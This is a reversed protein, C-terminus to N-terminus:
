KEFNKRIKKLPRLGDEPDSRWDRDSLESKNPQKLGDGDSLEIENILNFLNKCEDLTWCHDGAEYGKGDLDFHLEICDANWKFIASLIVSVKNTHDSWGTKLGFKERLTSIVKLNVEKVKTPYASSCHLLTSKKTYNEKSLLNFISEIENLSAMGSSFILPKNTSICEIFLKKWLIEYSAIKFFDVYEKTEKIADLYFPTIGFDIREAKCIESITPIFEDPLEWRKRDSHKKSSSLIEESFLQDIKFLQFKVADFGLKKSEKILNEVRDIDRNHNSSIESILYTM